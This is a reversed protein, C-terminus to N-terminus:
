GSACAAEAEQYSEAAKTIGLGINSGDDGEEDGVVGACRAHQIPPESMLARGHVASSSSQVSTVIILTLPPCM